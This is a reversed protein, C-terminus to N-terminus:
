ADASEGAFVVATVVPVDPPVLARTTLGGADVPMAWRGDATVRPVAYRATGDGPWGQTASVAADHAVADAEHAFLAWM